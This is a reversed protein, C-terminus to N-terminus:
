HKTAQAEEAEQAAAEEIIEIGKKLEHLLTAEDADDFNTPQTSIIQTAEGLHLREMDVAVKASHAADRVMSSYSKLISIAEPVSFGKKDSAMKDLEKALRKAILQIGKGLKLNADEVQMVSKRAGEIMHGEEARAKIANEKAQIRDQQAALYQGRTDLTDAPPGAEEEEIRARAMIQEQEIVEKIAPAWDHDWGDEWGRKATRRHCKAFRAAASVNGQANRYAELLLDYVEPTIRKGRGRQKEETKKSEM